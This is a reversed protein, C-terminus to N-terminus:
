SCMYLVVLFVYTAIAYSARSYALIHLVLLFVYLVVPFV